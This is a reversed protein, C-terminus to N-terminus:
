PNNIITNFWINYEMVLSWYKKNWIESAYFYLNHQQHLFYFLTTVMDFCGIRIMHINDMSFTFPCTSAFLFQLLVCYRRMTSLEKPLIGNECVFALSGTLDIIILTLTSCLLELIFLTSLNIDLIYMIIRYVPWETAQVCQVPQVRWQLSDAPMNELPEGEM